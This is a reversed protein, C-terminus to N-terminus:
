PDNKKPQPTAAPKAGMGPMGPAGMGPGMMGGGMGGMGPAQMGPAGMGGGMMGGMGMRMGGHRSHFPPEESPNKQAVKRIEELLKAIQRHTEDTQSVVLVKASGYTGAAISGPAGVEDWSQPAITKTITEVLQDYDERRQGAEDRFVVLDAVDYVKTLLMEREQTKERTTLLLVENRIIYTMDLDRLMLDLASRLSVGKINRTVPTASDIGVDDLARQDIQIEIKHTTKLYDVVESLPTEKFELTTPSGLAKEIAQEKSTKEADASDKKQGFQAFSPDAGLLLLVAAALAVPAFVFQKRSM